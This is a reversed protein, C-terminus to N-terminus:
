SANRFLRYFLLLINYWLYQFIRFIRSPNKMIQPFYELGREFTKESVRRKRESFVDLVDPDHIFLGSHLSKRNRHVWRQSGPIGDGVLVLSPHAKHIATLINHEMGRHYYGSFRGVVPLGPFTSRVNKEAQILSHPRAGLLYLNKRYKELVGLVSIIFVFPQYRVPKTKKLFVAGRVLSLSTPIVLAASMLMARYESRYKARLVDWLNVLMIHQPGERTLLELITSELDEPAVVDIPLRLFNIREIAM